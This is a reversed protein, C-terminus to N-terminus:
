NWLLRDTFTSVKHIQGPSPKRLSRRVSPSYIGYNRHSRQTASRWSWERQSALTEPGIVKRRLVLDLGARVATLSTSLHQLVLSLFLDANEQVAELYRISESRTGFASLLGIMRDEIATVQGMLPLAQAARGTSAYLKTLNILGRVFAPHEEGLAARIIELAQLWLPEATVYNGMAYHLDALANLSNAVAPYDEKLSARQIELARLLLPEAEAFNGLKSYLVGLNELTAASVPHYEELYLRALDYARRAVSIAQEHQDLQYLKVSQENLQVIRDALFRQTQVAMTATAWEGSVSASPGVHRTTQIVDLYLVLNFLTPIM